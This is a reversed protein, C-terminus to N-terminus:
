REDRVKQSLPSFFLSELGYLFSSLEVIHYMRSLRRHVYFLVVCHDLPLDVVDILDGSVEFCHKWSAGPVKGLIM